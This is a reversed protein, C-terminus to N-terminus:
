QYHEYARLYDAVSDKTALGKSMTDWEEDPIAYIDAASKKEKYHLRSALSQPMAARSVQRSPDNETPIGWSKGLGMAM